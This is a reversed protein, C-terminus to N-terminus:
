ARPAAGKSRGSPAKSSNEGADYYQYSSTYGDNKAGQTRILLGLSRCPFRVLQDAAQALMPRRVIHMDVVFVLGDVKSALAAADGVPLMAPSDVIVIDTQAVLADIMTGFRTSAVIEGPNPPIPGSPLVYMRSRAGTGRAWTAYHSFKTSFGVGDADGNPLPAVDVPVLSEVLETKGAAVTSVGSKNAIGFFKHQRPRRLDADVVVVKKGAMAMTIALNAVAFSKGEGQVSSTVLLSTFDGNVRMFDLNTRLLRFAEAAQGDPHTLTVIAHKRLSKKSVRPIRGLIPQHMIRAAEDPRRLRTDFQELLFALIIGAFLGVGFALMANRLPNPAYPSRPVSAPALVRHNGTAAGYLVKLDQLRQKLMLYDASQKAAGQYTALQGEIVGSAKAIQERQQEINMDIFATASANAAAAALTADPSDASMVIVNSGSSSSAAVKYGAATNVNEQRLLRKTRLQMDPSAMIDSIAAMQRDLAAVDTYGGNLPDALDISKEYILSAIASFRNEQLYSFYYASTTAVVAVLLIIWKRRWLVSMYDRGTLGGSESEPMSPPPAQAQRLSWDSAGGFGSSGYGRGTGSGLSSGEPSDGRM